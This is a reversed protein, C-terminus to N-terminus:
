VRLLLLLSVMWPETGSMPDLAVLMRSAAFSCMLELMVDAEKVPVERRPADIKTNV